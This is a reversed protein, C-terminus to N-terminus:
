KYWRFLKDFSLTSIDALNVTKNSVTNSIDRSQNTAGDVVLGYAKTDIYSEQFSIPFVNSKNRLFDNFQAITVKKNMNSIVTESSDVLTILDDNVIKDYALEDLESIKKGAM